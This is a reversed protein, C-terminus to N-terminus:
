DLQFGEYEHEASENLTKYYTPVGGLYILPERIKGPINDGMYWSKTTPLLSTNAITKVGQAWDTEAEEHAEISKLGRGQMYNMLKVIWEGQLEACTPGNCLATPAQPGYTFFLNPFGSVAMGLYTRVGQKWKDKLSQGLKGRIDIENFGGTFADYGTASIIYDFEWEKETTKIGKETVELVPTSNVDVLNVNPENFIEFYGNELSIRKCGFAHPQVEPALVEQLKPDRIKARVKDRWFNYAERNADWNFLMDKYGALWFHFDGEDWLQQYFNQRQEPTDDFTARNIFEFSLGGFSRLREEFFKPYKDRPFAQEDGFYEIQKMPLALNPTRQFLVFQRAVKSIEQALQVGTSGTGIIAVKKGRLDPDEKPWYSPHVWTGQFKEIGNWDPIHRKAAFGTNLLFQKVKFQKGDATTVLWRANSVNWEAATVRTDFYTDRRLDWKEAVFQFYDRLEASGPFRQSWSWDRWIEPDSFEYLPIASDVRAGPYRNWYWVGGYDSAFDILKVKHGEQRLRRLQYVGGFGAGVILADLDEVVGPRPGTNLATTGNM